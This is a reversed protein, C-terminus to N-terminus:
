HDAHQFRHARNPKRRSTDWVPHRKVNRLMSPRSARATIGLPLCLYQVGYNSGNVVDTPRSLMSRYM